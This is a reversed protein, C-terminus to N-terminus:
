RGARNEDAGCALRYLVFSAAVSLLLAILALARMFARM